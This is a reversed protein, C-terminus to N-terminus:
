SSAAFSRAQQRPWPFPTEMLTNVRAFHVCDLDPVRQQIEAALKAARLLISAWKPRALGPDPLMSYGIPHLDQGSLTTVCNSSSSPDVYKGQRLSASGYAPDKLRATHLAPPPALPSPPRKGLGKKPQVFVSSQLFTCPFFLAARDPLLLVPHLNAASEGTTRSIRRADVPEKRRACRDLKSQGNEATDYGFGM